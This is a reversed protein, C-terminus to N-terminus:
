KAAEGQRPHRRGLLSHGSAMSAKCATFEWDNVDHNKTSAPHDQVGEADLGICSRWAKRICGGRTRAPSPVAFPSSVPVDAALGANRPVAFAPKKSVPVPIERRLLAEFDLAHFFPHLEIDRTRTAGLRKKPNRPMLALILDGADKSVYVPIILDAGQINSILRERTRDFFPPVGTLLAYLLVGLGYIDVTHGHGANALVEPALFALSGCFSQTLATVGEKSLGFDTLLCHGDNDLVVNEPKMDRYVVNRDHLHAIGTSIEAGWLRVRPEDINKEENIRKQLDGGPCLQLVIVLHKSTQFAYHLSVIYPHRIYSLVDRETMAYRLLSGRKMKSKDLIKMAYELETRKHKVHFVKGFSGKGLLKVFNFSDPGAAELSSSERLSVFRRTSPESKNPSIPDGLGSRRSTVRSVPSMPDGLGSRRSTVRSVPTSCVMTSDDTEEGDSNPPKAHRLLKRVVDTRANRLLVDGGCVPSCPTRDAYSDECEERSFRKFIGAIDIEHAMEGPRQGLNNRARHQEDSGCELLLLILNTYGGAAAFHLPLNGDEDPVCCVKSNLELLLRAVEINGRQCALHLATLGADTQVDVSAGANILFEVCDSQGLSAAIHLATRGLPSRANVQLPTGGNTLSQELVERLAEISGSEAAGWLSQNGQRKEAWWENWNNGDMEEPLCPEGVFSPGFAREREGLYRVEGTDLNRVACKDAYLTEFPEKAVLEFDAAATKSSPSASAPVPHSLVVPFNEKKELVIQHDNNFSLSNTDSLEVSSDTRIRKGGSM